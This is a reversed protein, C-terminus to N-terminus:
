RGRRCMAGAMKNAAAMATGGNRCCCDSMAAAATGDAKPKKVYKAPDADFQKKCSENCFYYTKGEFVTTRGADKAKAADVAMGCVPDREQAAATVGAPSTQSAFAPISSSVLAIVSFAAVIILKM